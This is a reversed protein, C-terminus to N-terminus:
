YATALTNYEIDEQIIGLYGERAINYARGILVIIYFLLYRGYTSSIADSALGYICLSVLAWTCGEGVTSLFPDGFRRLHLTRKLFLIVAMIAWIVGGFGYVTLLSIYLSHSEMGNKDVARRLGQGLTYDKTTATEIYSKWTAFRGEVNKADLKDMPEFFPM